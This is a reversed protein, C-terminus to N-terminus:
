ARVDITTGPRAGAAPAAPAPAPAPGGQPAADPTGAGADGQASAAAATAAVSPQDDDAHSLAEIFEGDVFPQPPKAFTRQILVDALSPAGPPMSPSLSM